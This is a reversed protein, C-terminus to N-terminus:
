QKTLFFGCTGRITVIQFSINKFSLNSLLPLKKFSISSKVSSLGFARGPIHFGFWAKEDGCLSSQFWRREMDMTQVPLGYNTGCTTLSDTTPWQSVSRFFLLFARLFVSTLHFTRWQFSECLTYDFDPFSLPTPWQTVCWPFSRFSRKWATGGPGMTQTILLSPKEDM